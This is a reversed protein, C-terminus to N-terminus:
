VLDMKRIFPIVIVTVLLVSLLFYIGDQQEFYFNMWRDIDQPAILFNSGFFFV